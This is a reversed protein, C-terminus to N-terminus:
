VSDPPQRSCVLRLSLLYSLQTQLFCIPLCSFTSFREEMQLSLEFSSICVELVTMDSDIYFTNRKWMKNKHTIQKSKPKHLRFNNTKSAPSLTFFDFRYTATIETFYLHVNM